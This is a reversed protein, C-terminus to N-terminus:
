ATGGRRSSLVRRYHELYRDALPGLSFLEEVRHRAARGMSHRRGPDSLLAAVASAMGDEDSPAVTLGTVGEEVLEPVGGVRSAVAPVGVCAAELIVGPTGETDSTLLLLDAAALWSAPDATAGLIRVLLPTEGRSDAAAHLEALLPGAGVIWLEPRPKAPLQQAAAAAVRLLRDPRKERSLSGLAIIVPAEAPTALRARLRSRSEAPVFADPDIGRPIVITPVSLGYSAQLSERTVQSVAVVGDVRSVVLRRYLSRHLPGRLWHAPMGISRYVLAWGANPQRRRALSGYKVTRSGNVQVIDPGFLGLFTEVERLLRPQWGPLRELRSHADAGLARDNARLILPADAGRPSAYLALVATACGRVDLAGALDLAFVEAGRRQPKTILQLVRV